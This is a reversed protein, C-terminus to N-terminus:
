WAFTILIDLKMWNKMIFNRSFDYTVLISVNAVSRNSTIRKVPYCFLSINLIWFCNDGGIHFMERTKSILYWFNYTYFFYIHIIAKYSLFFVMLSNLSKDQSIKASSEIYHSSIIFGIIIHQECTFVM